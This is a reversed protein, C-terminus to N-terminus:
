HAAMAVINVAPHLGALHANAAKLYDLHDTLPGATRTLWGGHAGHATAVGDAPVANLYGLWAYTPQGAQLAELDSAPLDCIRNPLANYTQMAQVRPQAWFDTRARNLPYHQPDQRHHEAYAWFPQAARTDAVVDRWVLWRTAADAQARVRMAELDLLGVPGGAATDRWRDLLKSARRTGPVFHPMTGNTTLGHMALRTTALDALFRPHTNPPLCVLVTRIERM